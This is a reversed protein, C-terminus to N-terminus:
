CWHDRSFEFLRLFSINLGLYRLDKAVQAIGFRREIKGANSRKERQIELVVAACIRSQNRFDFM